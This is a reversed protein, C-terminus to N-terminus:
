HARTTERMETPSCGFWQRFARAFASTNTYGLLFTMDTVSYDLRRVYHEALDRRVQALVGRFSQDHERLRRHLTRKSIGFEKAIAEETAGGAPLHRMIALRTRHQIHEGDLTRLSQEILREHIEVLRSNGGTLPRDIGGADFLLSNDTRGFVLNPGFYRMWAEPQPPQPRRFTVELPVLDEDYIMRCLRLVIGLQADALLNPRTTPRLTSYLVRLGRAETQLEVDADENFFRSYHCYRQLANRLSASALFAHGVAGFHSPHLHEAARIGLAPDQVHTATRALTADFDDFSIRLPHSRERGPRFHQEKIVGAPDVGYAVLLRWISGLLPAYVSM